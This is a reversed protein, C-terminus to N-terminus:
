PKLASPVRVRLAHPRIRAAISAGGVCPEGDVHYVLPGTSAITVERVSVTTVGRLRAIWGAFLMPM